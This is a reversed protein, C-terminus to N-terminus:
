YAGRGQKNQPCGQLHAGLSRKDPVACCPPRSVSLAPTLPTNTPRGAVFRVCSSLCIPAEHHPCLGGQYHTGSQPSRANRAYRAFLVFVREVRGAFSPPHTLGSVLWWGGDVVLWWGGGGGGGGGRFVVLWQAILPRRCAHLSPM